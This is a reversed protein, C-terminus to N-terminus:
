IYIVCVHVILSIHVISSIIVSEQYAQNNMGFYSVFRTLVVM